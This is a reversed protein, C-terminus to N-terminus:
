VCVGNTTDCSQGNSCDSAHICGVCTGIDARCVKGSPCNADVICQLCQHTATNCVQGNKCDISTTCRAVPSRISASYSRRLLVALVIVAILLVIAVILTIIFAINMRKPCISVYGQPTAVTVPSSGRLSM